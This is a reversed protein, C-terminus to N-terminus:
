RPENEQSEKVVIRVLDVASKWGINFQFCVRGLAIAFAAAAQLPPVEMESMMEILSKSLPAGGRVDDITIAAMGTRQARM